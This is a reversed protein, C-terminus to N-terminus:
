KVGADAESPCWSTQIEAPTGDPAFGHVTAKVQKGNCPLVEEAVFGALMACLLFGGVIGWAIDAADTKPDSVANGGMRVLLERKVRCDLRAWQFM